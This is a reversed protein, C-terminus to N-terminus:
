RRSRCEIEVELYWELYNTSNALGDTYFWFQGVMGAYPGPVPSLNSAFERHGKVDGNITMAKVDALHYIKCGPVSWVDAKSTPATGTYGAVWSVPVSHRTVGTTQPSISCVTLAAKKLRVERFLPAIDSWEPFSTVDPDCPIYGSLVGSGSSAVFSSAGMRFKYIKQPDILSNSLGSGGTAPSRLLPGPKPVDEMVFDDSEDLKM